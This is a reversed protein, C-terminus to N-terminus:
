VWFRSSCASKLMIKKKESVVNFKDSIRELDVEIIHSKAIRVSAIALDIIDTDPDLSGDHSIKVNAEKLLAMSEEYPPMNLKVVGKFGSEKKPVFKFERM